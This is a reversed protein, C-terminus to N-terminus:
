QLFQKVVSISTGGSSISSNAASAGIQSNMKRYNGGSWCMLTMPHGRREKIIIIIKIYGEVFHLFQLKFVYSQRSNGM